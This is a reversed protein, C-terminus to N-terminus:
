LISILWHDLENLRQRVSLCDWDGQAKHVASDDLQRGTYQNFHGNEAREAELRVVRQSCHSIRPREIDLYLGVPKSGSTGSIDSGQQLRRGKFKPPMAWPSLEVANINVAPGIMRLGIELAGRAASNRDTQCGLVSVPRLIAKLKCVLEAVCQGVEAITRVPQHTIGGMSIEPQFFTKAFRSRQEGQSGHAARPPGRRGIRRPPIVCWPKIGVCFLSERSRLM